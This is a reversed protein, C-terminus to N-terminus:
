IMCHNRRIEVNPQQIRKLHATCSLSFPLSTMRRDIRDLPKNTLNNTPPFVNPANIKHMPRLIRRAVCEPMVPSQRRQVPASRSFHVAHRMRDLLGAFLGIGMMDLPQHHCAIKRQNGTDIRRRQM